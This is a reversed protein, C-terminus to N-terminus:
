LEYKTYENTYEDRQGSCSELTRRSTKGPNRRSRAEGTGGGKEYEAAKVEKLMVILPREDRKQRRWWAGLKTGLTISGRHDNDLKLFLFLFFSVTRPM